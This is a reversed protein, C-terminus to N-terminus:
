VKFKRVLGNLKRALEAQESIEHVAEEVSSATDGIHTKIEESSSATEEATASVTEIAKGVEEISSLMLNTSNAIDESITSILLADKEYQVGTEVLLKYDPKVKNDIFGLVDITNKSLNDFANQVKGLVSQINSVTGASQEALKKVEDAVVAFGRGQEGARAAEIAANLSLLNTQEAIAGIAEAMAKIEGVIKGEEIAKMIKVQKEDILTNAEEMSEIGKGKIANAREKIENSSESAGLAKRALENTTSEIEQTSANVEETTASLDGSGNAIQATAENVYKIKEAVDMMTGSVQESSAAVQQTTANIEIILQQLNALMKNFSKAILGIEDNSNLELRSTLDGENNSLEALRDSIKGLNSIKKTLVTYTSLILLTLVVILAITVYISIYLNRTARDTEKAARANMKTQFDKINADINAKNAEYNSDFMAKRGKDFNGAKADAMAQNETTVIGDSNAKAQEILGLEEDPANLEKLRKVVKDRTKTENVEKMYNDYHVQDGFQVYARAENTLYDTANALDIGLQKFEAQRSVATTESQFSYNLFIISGATMFIILLFLVGILKLYKSIKMDAIRFNISMKTNSPKSNKKVKSNGTKVKKSIKM